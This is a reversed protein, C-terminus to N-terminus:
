VGMECEEFNIDLVNCGEFHANTLNTGKPLRLEQMDVEEFYATSLDFPKEASLDLSSLTKYGLYPSDVAHSLLRELEARVHADKSWVVVSPDFGYKLALNESLKPNNATYEILLDM